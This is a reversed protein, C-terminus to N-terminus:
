NIPSFIERPGQRFEPMPCFGDPCGSSLYDDPDHNAIYEMVKSSEKKIRQVKAEEQEKIAILRKLYWQAKKLDEVGGKKEYRWLYAIATLKLHACFGENSSCAELAEICEIGGFSYHAPSNVSDNM